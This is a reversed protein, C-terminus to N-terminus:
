AVMELNEVREEVTVRYPKPNGYHLEVLEFPVCSSCCLTAHTGGYRRYAVRTDAVLDDGDFAPCEHWGFDPGETLAFLAEPFLAELSNV